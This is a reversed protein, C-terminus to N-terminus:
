LASGTVKCLVINQPGIYLTKVVNEKQTTHLKCVSRSCQLRVVLRCLVISNDTSVVGDTSSVGEGTSVVGDGTSVVRDTSVLASWEM